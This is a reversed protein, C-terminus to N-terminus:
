FNGFMITESALACCDHDDHHTAGFVSSERKFTLLILGQQPACYRAGGTTLFLGAGDARLLM